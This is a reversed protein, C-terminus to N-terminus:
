VPAAADLRAREDASLELWAADVNDDAHAVNATGPIPVM